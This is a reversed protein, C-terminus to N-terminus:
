FIRILVNEVAFLVLVAKLSYKYPLRFRCEVNKRTLTLDMLMIRIEPEELLDEIDSLSKYPGLPANNGYNVVDNKMNVVYYKDKDEVIAGVRLAETVLLMDERAFYDYSYDFEGTAGDHIGAKGKAITFKIEKGTQVKKKEKTNKDREEEKEKAGVQLTIHVLLAHMLASPGIFKREPIFKQMPGPANARDKNARVQGIFLLSTEHRSSSLIRNYYHQFFRTTVTALAGQRPDKEFGKDETDMEASPSLANYSDIAVIGYAGSDLISLINDYYAEANHGKIIDFRGIQRNFAEKEEKTFPPLGNKVRHTEREEVMIKPIAIEIGMRRMLFYDRPHETCALAIYSEDGYVKQHMKFTMDLLFSKCSHEVGSILSPGGAPFGGGLAEDVTIIGTPRRLFFANPAQSSPVVLSEKDNIKKIAAIAAKAKDKSMNSMNAGLLFLGEGM